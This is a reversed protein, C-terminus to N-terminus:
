EIEGHAVAIKRGLGDRHHPVVGGCAGGFNGLTVIDDDHTAHTTPEEPDGTGGAASGFKM